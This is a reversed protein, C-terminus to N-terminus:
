MCNNEESGEGIKGAIQIGWMSSSIWKRSLGFIHWAEKLGGTRAEPELCIELGDRGGRDELGAFSYSPQSKAPSSEKCM